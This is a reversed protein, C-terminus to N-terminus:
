QQQQMSVINSGDRDNGGDNAVSSLRRIVIRRLRTELQSSAAAAVGIEESRRRVVKAKGEQLRIRRRRRRTTQLRVSVSPDYLSFLLLVSLASM